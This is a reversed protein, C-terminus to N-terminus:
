RIAESSMPACVGHLSVKIGAQVQKLPLDLLVAIFELHLSLYGELPAGLRAVVYRLIKITFDFVELQLYM